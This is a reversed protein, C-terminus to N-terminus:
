RLRKTDKPNNTSVQMSTKMKFPNTSSVNEVSNVDDEFM